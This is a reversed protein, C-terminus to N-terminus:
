GNLLGNNRLIEQVWMSVVPGRNPKLTKIYHLEDMPLNNIDYYFPYHRAMHNGGMRFSNNGWLAPANPAYVAFSTDVPASYLEFKEHPIKNELFKSEIEIAKQTQWSNNQPLDDIKIGLGVKHLNFQNCVEIMDEIFNEPNEQIPVVDSDTYVYHEKTIDAFRPHQLKVLTYLTSNDFNTEVVDNIFVEANTKKYWELLPEYTSENDIIIINNYNRQQLSTVLDILPPLRDKNLIIIPTDKM